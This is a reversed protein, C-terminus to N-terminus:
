GMMLKWQTGRQQAGTTGHGQRSRKQQYTSFLEGVTSDKGRARSPPAGFFTSSHQLLERLHIPPLSSIVIMSGSGLIRRHQGHAAIRSPSRFPHVSCPSTRARVNSLSLSLLARLPFCLPPCLAHAPSPRLPSPACSFPVRICIWRTPPRQPL